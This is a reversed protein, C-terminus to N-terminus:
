LPLGLEGRLLQAGVVVERILRREPLSYRSSLGLARHDRSLNHVSASASRYDM